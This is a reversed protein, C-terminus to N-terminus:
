RIEKVFGIVNGKGYQAELLEKAKYQNEAMVLTKAQTTVGGDKQIKITAEFTKM